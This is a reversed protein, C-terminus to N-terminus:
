KVYMMYQWMHQTEQHYLKHYCAHKWAHIYLHYQIATIASSAWHLILFRDTSEPPRNRLQHQAHAQTLKHTRIQTHRAHHRYLTTKIDCLSGTLWLAKDPQSITVNQSLARSMFGKFKAACNGSLMRIFISRNVKKTEISGSAQRSFCCSAVVSFFLICFLLTPLASPLTFSFCHITIFGIMDDM